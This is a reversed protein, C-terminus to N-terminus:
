AWNGPGFTPSAKPANVTTLIVHASNNTPDTDSTGAAPEVTFTIASAADPEPEAIFEVSSTPGTPLTCTADSTSAIMCNPGLDVLFSLGVAHVLLTGGGAAPLGGVTATVRFRKAGQPTAVASITV